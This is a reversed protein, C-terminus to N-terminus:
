LLYGPHQLLNFQQLFDDSYKKVELITEETILDYDLFFLFWETLTKPAQIILASGLQYFFLAQEIIPIDNPDYNKDQTIPLILETAFEFFVSPCENIFFLFIKNLTDRDTKSLSNQTLFLHLLTIRNKKDFLWISLEEKEIQKSSFLYLKIATTLLFNQPLAFFRFDTVM